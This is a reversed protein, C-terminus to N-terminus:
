IDDEDSTDPLDLDSTYEAIIVDDMWDKAERFEALDDHTKIEIPKGEETKRIMVNGCQTWASHIRKKKVLKRAAYLLNSRHSTVRDNIYVNKKPDTNVFTKKRRQYFDKRTTLKKFRVILNRNPKSDSSKGLRHLQVIDTPKLNMDLTDKAFRVVKQKEEEEDCGTDPLGIINVDCNYQQQELQDIRINMEQILKDQTQKEWQLKEICRDKKRIAMKLDDIESKMASLKTDFDIIKSEFVQSSLNRIIDYLQTLTLEAGNFSEPDPLATKDEDSTSSTTAESKKAQKEKAQKKTTTTPTEKKTTGKPKGM